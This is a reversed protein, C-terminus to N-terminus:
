IDRQFEVSTEGELPACQYATYTCVLEFILIYSSLACIAMTMSPGSKKKESLTACAGNNQARHWTGGYGCSITNEKKKKCLVEKEVCMKRM